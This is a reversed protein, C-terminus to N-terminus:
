VVVPDAKAAESTAPLEVRFNSGRGVESTVGLTGGHAEVIANCISLGLGTGPGQTRTTFFPEFIREMLEPAIGPGDDSVEIRVTGRTGPGLRDSEVGATSGLLLLRVGIAGAVLAPAALYARVRRLPASV